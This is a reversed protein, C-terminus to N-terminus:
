QWFFRYSVLADGNLRYALLAICLVIVVSKIAFSVNKDFRSIANPLAILQGFLFYYSVREDIFVETYRMLYVILGVFTMILFFSYDKDKRREGAFIVSVVIIIVYIAVAVYGGSEVEGEYEIRSFMNGLSAIQSSFAFLIGTVIPALVGTAINLKFGYIFYVFLFVISSTHFTSALLVLLVFPILKRKKVFEIAFLCISMAIAQRLGQVSFTYLGLCIYMVFSLEPDKSNLYIFRCVSVTFIIASIVFAYQGDQFVQSLLWVFTCYGPEFRAESIYSRLFGYSLNSMEEWHDYYHGSDDSGVERHRLAIILFMAIGCLIFFIRKAKDNTKISKKQNLEVLLSVMVPFAAFFLYWFM